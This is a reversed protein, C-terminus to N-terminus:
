QSVRIGYQREMLALQLGRVRGGRLTLSPAVVTDWYSDVTVEDPSVGLMKYLGLRNKSDVCVSYDPRRLCGKWSLNLLPREHISARRNQGNNHGAARELLRRSKAWRLRYAALEDHTFRRGKQWLQDIESILNDYTLEVAEAASSNLIAHEVNRTFAGATFNASGIIAKWNSKNNSFLYLKPHFVGKLGDQDLRYRM